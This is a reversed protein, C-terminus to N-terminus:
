PIPVRCGSRCLLQMVAEGRQMEVPIETELREPSVPPQTCRRDQSIQLPQVTLLDAVHGDPHRLLTIDVAVSIRKRPYNEVKDLRAPSTHRSQGAEDAAHGVKRYGSYKRKNSM